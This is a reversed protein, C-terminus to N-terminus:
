VSELELRKIKGEIIIKDVMINRLLLDNGTISFEGEDIIIRIIEPTYEIIGKHNEIFVQLNGILVIRPLNLIIDSPLELFHATRRKIRKKFEAWSMFFDGGM